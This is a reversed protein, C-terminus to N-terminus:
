GATRTADVGNDDNRDDGGRRAQARHWHESIVLWDAPVRALPFGCARLDDILRAIAERRAVPGKSPGFGTWDIGQLDAVTAACIDHCQENTILGARCAAGAAGAFSHFFIVGDKVHESKLVGDGCSDSDPNVDHVLSLPVDHRGYAAMLQAAVSADGQGSDGIFISRYEPMIAKMSMINDLKKGIIANMSTSRLLSGMLVLAHDQLPITKLTALTHRKLYGRYDAPRATVVILSSPLSHVHHEHRHQQQHQQHHDSASARQHTGWVPGSHHKAVPLVPPRRGGDGGKGGHRWKWRLRRWRHGWQLWRLGALRGLRMRMPQVHRSYASSSSAQLASRFRAMRSALRDRAGSGTGAGARSTAQAARLTLRDRRRQRYRTYTSRIVDRMSRLISRLRSAYTYKVPAQQSPEVLASAPSTSGSNSLKTAAAAAASPSNPAPMPPMSSLTPAADGARAAPGILGNVDEVEDEDIVVDTGTGGETTPQVGGGAGAGYIGTSLQQTCMRTWWGPSLDVGAGAGGTASSTRSHPQDTMTAMEVERRGAMRLTRYFAVVGPYVCRRPYRKDVVYGACVMTDDFDTFLLLPKANVSGPHPQRQQQLDHHESLPKAQPESAHTNHDAQTPHQHNHHHHHHHDHWLHHHWPRGQHVATGDEHLGHVDGGNHFPSSSSGNGSTDPTPSSSSSSSSSSIAAAAQIAFHQLLRYRTPLHIIDRLLLGHLDFTHGGCNIADKLISLDSGHTRLLIHAIADAHAPLLAARPNPRDDLLAAIAVAKAHVGLEHRTLVRLLREHAASHASAYRLADLAFTGDTITANLQPASIMELEGVWRLPDDLTSVNLQRSDTSAARSSWTGVPPSSSVRFHRVSIIAGVGFTRPGIPVNDIFWSRRVVCSRAPGSILMQLPLRRVQM